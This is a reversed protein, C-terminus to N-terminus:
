QLYVLLYEKYDERFKLYFGQFVDSFFKMKLLTGPELFSKM